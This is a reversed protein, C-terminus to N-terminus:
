ANNKVKNLKSTQQVPTYSTEVLKIEKGMRGNKLKGKGKEEGEM